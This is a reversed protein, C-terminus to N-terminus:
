QPGRRKIQPAPKSPRRENTRQRTNPRSTSPTDSKLERSRRPNLSKREQKDFSPRGVSRDPNTDYRAGSTQRKRYTDFFRPSPRSPNSLNTTSHSAAHRTVVDGRNRYLNNTVPGRANTQNSRSWRDPYDYNNRRYYHSRYSPRYEPWYLSPGWWNWHRPHSNFIYFWGINVGITWGAWPDYYMSFGWTVPRPYYVRGFWAHSAYGTGYVVTPGYVYCGLYGATYGMYVFDPTVDYIYVYRAPYAASSPPILDVDVPREIAVSWPGTAQNAMFWVGNDICYYLNGIQLVTGSANVALFVHTGAIPEFQPEGDYVVQCTTRRRDVRATQPVQADMTAERAANTGPVYTLVDRKESNEPIRAFDVPLAEIYVYYWPGNLQSSKYWRGALVVYYQQSAIDMFIPDNTNTVFLLKTNDIPALQPAGETQILEAPHTRVVINPPVTPKEEQKTEMKRLKRNVKRITCPLKGVPVWESNISNSQYWYRNSYLYYQKTNPEQVMVFPTNGVRDIALYEDYQIFPQGDIRVLTTPQQTYIIEPPTNNFDPQNNKRYSELSTNLEDVSITLSQRAVARQLLPELDKDLWSEDVPPFRITTIRINELNVQRVDRHTNLIANLWITGFVLEGKAEKSVAIIGRATLQNGSLTEPQLPYLIFRGGNELVIEKPWVSQACLGIPIYVSLTLGLIIKTFTNM